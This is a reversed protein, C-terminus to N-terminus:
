SSQFKANKVRQLSSKHTAIQLNTGLRPSNIVTLLHSYIYSKLLKKLENFKTYNLAKTAHDPILLKLM